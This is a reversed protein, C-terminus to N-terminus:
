NRHRLEKYSKSEWVREFHGSVAIDDPTFTKVGLVEREKFPIFKNVQNYSWQILESCYFAKIDSTQFSFDYPKGIQTRAHKVAESMEPVTVGKPKVAVIFDKKMMFDILDTEVVGQGVAEIVTGNGTYIAVHSWFDPIFLNGLEGNTKTVLITGEDPFMITFERYDHAHIKKRTWPSAIRGVIPSAWTVFKILQRQIYAM